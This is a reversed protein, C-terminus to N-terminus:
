AFAELDLRPEVALCQLRRVGVQEHERDRFRQDIEGFADRELRAVDQEGARRRADAVCALRLRDPHLRAVGGFHFNLPDTRQAIRDCVFLLRLPAIASLSLTNTIQPESRLPEYLADTTRVKGFSTGALM